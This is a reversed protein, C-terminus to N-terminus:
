RPNARGSRDIDRILDRARAIIGAAARHAAFEDGPAPAPAATRARAMRQRAAAIMEPEHQRFWGDERVRRLRRTDWREGVTGRLRRAM